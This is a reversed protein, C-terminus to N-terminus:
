ESTFVALQYPELTFDDLGVMRDNVLDRFQYGLGYLRLLNGPVVAEEEIFNAFVLARQGQYTRTFAFIRADQSDIVQFDHGSFVPHTKRLVILRQLGSYLRGEIQQPIAGGKM